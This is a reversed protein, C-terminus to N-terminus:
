WEVSVYRTELYEALGQPGGERGVGSRKVGGFPASPDSVLGRNLGVMGVQLAEALALGRRLDRTYVYAALGHEGRNLEDVLGDLDQFAVIPAVPGFVEEAGTWDPGALGDVVTAPYFFGPAEDVAGGVRVSAGADGWRSVLRALRDREGLSIMPGLDSAPDEGPGTRVASMAATFRETFAEAVPAAVFIRNAAVCSMGGNRMKAVMAGDVAADVDADACVIFPANGGLEMSCRLVRSAAQELLLSGVATSGTFSLKRLAQHAMVEATAGAADSTCVVNVVGAPVGVEDLVHALALASLPTERAPKLVVTCGAALAPALKRTVMSAPANWPTILLSPGVPHSSVLHRVGGAPAQALSGPWRVAEESYFRLFEAAYDVEARAERLPKGTEAVIVAALDERHELARAFAARLLESRERPPRAAWAPAVQAAAEIAARAEAAGADPVSTLRVGTAPDFVELRKGDSTALFEGAILSGRREPPLYALARDALKSSMYCTYTRVCM